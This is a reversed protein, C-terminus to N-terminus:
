AVQRAAAPLLVRVVTGAGPSSEVDIRGGLARVAQRAIALGLGFGEADRRGGRYFRDFIREQTEASMGPGSDRVEIEISGGAAPRAAFVIEGREAYKEANAALNTLLQEALDPDALVALGDSCSVRVEVGAKPRLNAAVAELLPRVAVAVLGPAQEQTQARALVLLARTLRGLRAAEREIHGLFRDREEPVEKAGSQLVEVAGTIAALPTRLEHAANTVFEREVRERRERESVDTLVLVATERDAGAPLGVVSYTREESPFVRAQAVPAGPLFLGQVLRRLSVDNWVAPLPDGEALNRLGLFRRAAENVFGVELSRNVTVVGDQLRELLRRLRDRDSELRAFSDRLRVRMRDITLALVGLEDRFRPQLPTEFNGGEIAAAAAAVRRLRGTIWIAVLLGAGAGVLVAFLAAEVIKERVIGLEAELEPHSVYALVAAPYGVPTAGPAVSAGTPADRLPLSVVTHAEGDPTSVYRRGALAAAVAEEREEVAALDVGRALEPTIPAGTLDLVFLSVTRKAMIEALANELDGRRLAQSVSEAAAVSRGVALDEARERFAQESRSSFVQAVAVATIAAILAFALALWWRMSIRVRLM